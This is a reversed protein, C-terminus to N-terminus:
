GDARSGSRASKLIGGKSSANSKADLKALNAKTPVDKPMSTGTRTLGKKPEAFTLSKNANLPRGDSSSGISRMANFGGTDGKVASNMMMKNPSPSGRSPSSGGGWASSRMGSPERNDGFEAEEMRAIEDM